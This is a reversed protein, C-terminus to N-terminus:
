ASVLGEARSEDFEGADAQQAEVVALPVMMAAWAVPSRVVRRAEELTMGKRQRM